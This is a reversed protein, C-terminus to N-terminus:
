HVYESWMSRVVVCCVGDELHRSQDLLILVASITMYACIDAKIVVPLLAALVTGVPEGVVIFLAIWDDVGIGEGVHFVHSVM